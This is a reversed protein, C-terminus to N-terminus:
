VTGGLDLLVMKGEANYGVNKGHADLIKYGNKRLCIILNSYDSILKPYEERIGDMKDKLQDALFLDGEAASLYHRFLYSHYESIVYIFYPDIPEVKEAIILWLSNDLKEVPAVVRVTCSSPNKFFYKAARVDKADTTYKYVVNGRDHYVIGSEGAGLYDIGREEEKQAIEQSMARDVDKPGLFYDYDKEKISSPNPLPLPKSIKILWNNM